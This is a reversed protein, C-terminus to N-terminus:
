NLSPIWVEKATTNKKIKVQQIILSNTVKAKKWITLGNGQRPSSCTKWIQRQCWDPSAQFLSYMGSTQTEDFVSRSLFSKQYATQEDLKHVNGPLVSIM